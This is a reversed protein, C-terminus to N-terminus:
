VVNQILTSNIKSSRLKKKTKQTTAPLRDNNITIETILSKQKKGIVTTQDFLMCDKQQLQSHHQLM